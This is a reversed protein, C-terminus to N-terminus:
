AGVARIEDELLKSFEAKLRELKEQTESEVYLRIKPSTNAARILIWGDGFDARFGDITNINDYKESYKDKINEVVKFKNEDSCKFTIEEFPYVPFDLLESLKKGNKEIIEAIKLPVILSDDFAFYKPIVIHNSEEVGMMGKQKACEALVFTHGVQIQIIDAGLPELQKNLMMSCAVTTIIKGKRESLLDRGIVLGTENGSLARGADDVIAARDGDGDFAVGFDAKTELVKAVLASINKPAPDSPRNPFRSDVDCFLKVVNFGLAEFVEPASHCMSGNGCDVVVKLKRGLKFNNKMFEVYENKTNAADLKGVNEPMIDFDEDKAMRGIGVNDEEPFGIGEGTYFKVGNWEPGLHSATIYATVDKGLRWGSFLAIGFSTTGVDTVNIGTARFGSILMHSLVESSERIDNGVLANNGLKKRKMLTGLALGIRYMLEPTLDKGFIGRIDYARFIHSPFDGM